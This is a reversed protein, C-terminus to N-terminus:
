ARRASRAALAGILAAGGCALTLWAGWGVFLNATRVYLYSLVLLVVAGGGILLGRTRRAISGLMIAGGAVPIAFLWAPSPLGLGRPPSPLRALDYGSVTVGGGGFWPLFFGAVVLAGAIAGWGRDGRAAGIAIAGAAAVITTWAGYRLSDFMGSVVDYAALGVVAGGVLLAIGRVREGTFAAYAMAAGGVPYLWLLHRKWGLEATRALEFGSMKVHGLLDIWPAFFAVVMAIGVFGLARNGLGQSASTKM